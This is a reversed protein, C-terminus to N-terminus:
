LKISLVLVGIISILAVIWMVSFDNPDINESQTAKGMQISIGAVLLFAAVLILIDLGTDLFIKILANPM